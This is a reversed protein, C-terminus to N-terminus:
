NYNYIVYIYIGTSESLYLKWLDRHNICLPIYKRNTDPMIEANVDVYHIFM